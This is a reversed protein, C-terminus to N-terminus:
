RARRSVAARRDRDFVARAGAGAERSDHGDQDRHAREAGHEDGPRDLDEAGRQHRRRRTRVGHIARRAGASRDGRHLVPERRQRSQEAGAGCVGRGTDAKGRQARFAAPEVRRQRVEREAGSGQVASRRGPHDGDCDRSSIDHRQVRRGARPHHFARRSEAGRRGAPGARDHGREDRAGGAQQSAGRGAAHLHLVHRAAAGAAAARSAAGANASRPPAARAFLLAHESNDAIATM